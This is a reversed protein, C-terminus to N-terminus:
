FKFPRHKIKVSKPPVLDVIDFWFETPKENGLTIKNAGSLSSKHQRALLRVWKFKPCSSFDRLHDCPLPLHWTRKSMRKKTGNTINKKFLFVMNQM